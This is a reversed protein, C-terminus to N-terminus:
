SDDKDRKKSREREKDDPALTLLGPDLQHRPRAPYM